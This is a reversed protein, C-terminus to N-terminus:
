GGREVGAGAGRESVWATRQREYQAVAGRGGRGEQVVVGMDAGDSLTVGVVSAVEGLQRGSRLLWLGHLRTRLMTDQEARYAAKLAEETDEPHWDVRFPRGIM